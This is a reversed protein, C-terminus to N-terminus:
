PLRWTCMEGVRKCHIYRWNKGTNQDGLYCETIV